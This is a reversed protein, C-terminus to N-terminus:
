EVCPNRRYLELEGQTWVKEYRGVVGSLMERQMWRQFGKEQADKLILAFCPARDIGLQVNPNQWLHGYLVDPVGVTEGKPFNTQLIADVNADAVTRFAISKSVAAPRLFAYTFVSLLAAAAVAVEFSRGSQRALRAMAFAFAILVYSIWVGEYHSGMTWVLPRPAALVEGFAPVAFLLVIPELIPLFALPLFVQVLYLLRPSLTGGLSEYSDQRTALMFATWEHNGSLMPRLVLLYTSIVLGSFGLVVVAFRRLGYDGRFSAWFCFLTAAWVLFISQDEKLLLALAALIGAAVWERKRVSLFLWVTVAPAFCTEYPDGYMLWALPPYILALLGVALAQEPALLTKSLYYVGVATM